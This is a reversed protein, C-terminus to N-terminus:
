LLKSLLRDFKNPSIIEHTIFKGNYFLGFTTLITPSNQAKEKTTIRITKFPM